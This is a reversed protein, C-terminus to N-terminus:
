PHIIEFRKIVSHSGSEEIQILYIGQQWDNTQITNGHISNGTLV